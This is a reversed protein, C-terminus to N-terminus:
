EGPPRKKACIAAEARGDKLWTSHRGVADTLTLTLTMDLERGDRGRLPAAECEVVEGEDQEGHEGRHAM